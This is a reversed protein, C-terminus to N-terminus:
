VEDEGAEPTTTPPEQTPKSLPPQPKLVPEELPGEDFSRASSEPTFPHIPKLPQPAPGVGGEGFGFGPIGQPLRERYLWTLYGGDDVLVVDGWEALLIGSQPNSAYAVLVLRVQQAMDRLTEAVEEYEANLAEDDLDAEDLRLQQHGTEPTLSLLHRRVESLKMRARDVPRDIKDAYRWPYIVTNGIVPLEYRARTPKIVYFGDVGRLHNVLEQHQALWILGYAENTELGLSVHGELARRHAEELAAPIRVILEEAAAGFRARAWNSPGTM